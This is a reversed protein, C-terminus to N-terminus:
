PLPEYTGMLPRTTSPSDEAVRGPIEGARYRRLVTEPSLGLYEAVQRTTLLRDNVLAAAYGPLRSRASSM